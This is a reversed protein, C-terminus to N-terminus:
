EILGLIELDPSVKTLFQLCRDRWLGVHFFDSFFDLWNYHATESDKTVTQEVDESDDSLAEDASEYNEEGATEEDGWEADLPEVVLVDGDSMGLAFENRRM